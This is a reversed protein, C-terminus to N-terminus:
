NRQQFEKVYLPVSYALDAFEKKVYKKFALAAMERAGATHECFIAQPRSCVKKIKEIANGCFIIKKLALEASFSNEDLVLATPMSLETLVVDYRAYYVEMRRADIMPCIIIDSGTTKASAINNAMQDVASAALLQLSSITLLPKNLAYCLGKATSLGVRLGTYSGPGITVAIADLDAPHLNNDKLLADIATHMWAAHDNQISNSRSDICHDDKSLALMANELATDIHLLIAM